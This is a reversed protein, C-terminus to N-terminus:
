EVKPLIDISSLLNIEVKQQNIEVKLTINYQPSARTLKECNMKTIYSNEM